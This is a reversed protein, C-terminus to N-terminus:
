ASCSDEEPRAAYRALNDSGDQDLASRRSHGTRMETPVRQRTRSPRVKRPRRRERRLEEMRARITAFDDACRPRNM